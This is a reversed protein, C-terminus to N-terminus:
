GLRATLAQDLHDLRQELAQGLIEFLPGVQAATLEHAAEDRRDALRPLCLDAATLIARAIRQCDYAVDAPHRDCPTDVSM